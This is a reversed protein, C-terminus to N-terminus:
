AHQSARRGETSRRVADPRFRYRTISFGHEAPKAVDRSEIDREGVAAGCQCQDDTLQERVLDDGTVVVWEEHREPNTSKM